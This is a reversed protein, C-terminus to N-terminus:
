RVAKLIENMMSYGPGEFHVNDPKFNGCTLAPTCANRDPNKAKNVLGCTLGVEDLELFHFRRHKWTALAANIERRQDERFHFDAGRPPIAFMYVQARPWASQVVEVIRKLGAVIACADPKEDALNNTGAMIFVRKPSFRSLDIDSLRWIINQTRDRSVGLNQFTGQKLVKAISEDKWGEILSDGVFVTEARYNLNEKVLDWRRFADRFQMPVPSTAIQVSYSDCVEAAQLRASWAFLALALIVLRM